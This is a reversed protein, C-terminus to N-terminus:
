QNGHKAKRAAAKAAKLQEAANKAGINWAQDYTVTYFFRRGKPRIRLYTSHLEIVLPAWKFRSGTTRVSSFTERKVPKTTNTM